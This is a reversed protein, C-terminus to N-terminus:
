YLDSPIPREWISLRQFHNSIAPLEAFKNEGEFMWDNFAVSSTLKFGLSECVRESVTSSTECVMSQYNNERAVDVSAHWLGTVVGQRRVEPVVCTFYLPHFVQGPLIRNRRHSKYRTHLEHFIARVPNWVSPLSRYAQPLTEKWDENIICGLVEGTNTDVAVVSKDQKAAREVFMGTMDRWDSPSLHLSLAFPDRAKEGGFSHSIAETVKGVMGPTLIRYAINAVATPKKVAAKIVAEM